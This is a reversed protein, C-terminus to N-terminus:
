KVELDFSVTVWGDKDVWANFGGNDCTRGHEWHSMYDWVLEVLRTMPLGTYMEVTSDYDVVEVGTQVKWDVLCDALVEKDLNYLNQKANEEAEITHSWQWAMKLEGTLQKEDL